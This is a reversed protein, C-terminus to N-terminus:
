GRQHVNGTELITALEGNGPDAIGEIVVQMLDLDWKWSWWKKNEQDIGERLYGVKWIPKDSPSLSAVCHCGQTDRTVFTYQGMVSVSVSQFFYPQGTFVIHM